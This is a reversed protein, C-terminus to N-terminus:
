IIIKRGNFFILVGPILVMFRGRIRIVNFCGIGPGLELSKKYNIKQVDFAM